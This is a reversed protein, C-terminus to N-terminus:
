LFMFDAEEGILLYITNMTEITKEKDDYKLVYSTRIQTGDAWRKQEDNYIEGIYVLGSSLPISKWNHLHAKLKLNTDPNNM